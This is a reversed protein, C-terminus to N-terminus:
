CLAVIGYVIFTEILVRVIWMAVTGNVIVAVIGHVILAM